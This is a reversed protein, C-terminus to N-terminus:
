ESRRRRKDINHVKAVYANAVIANCEYLVSMNSRFETMYLRLEEAETSFRKHYLAIRMGKELMNGATIVLEDLINALAFDVYIGNDFTSLLNLGVATSLGEFYFEIEGLEEIPDSDDRFAQVVKGVETSIGACMHLIYATSPTLGAIIESGGNKKRDAAVLTSHEKEITEQKQEIQCQLGKVKQAPTQYPQQKQTSM